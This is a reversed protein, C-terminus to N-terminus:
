MQDCSPTSLRGYAPAMHRLAFMAGTSSNADHHDIALKHFRREMMPLAALVAAITLMLVRLNNRMIPRALEGLEPVRHSQDCRLEDLRIHFSVFVIRPIGFRDTLGDTRGLM